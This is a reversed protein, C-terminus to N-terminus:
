QNLENKIIKQYKWHKDTQVHNARVYKATNWKFDKIDFSNVNRIVFGESKKVDVGMINMFDDFKGEFLIPVHVIDLIKFWKLTEKWSLCINNEWVSFGYFYSKLNKYHISHKAYLNEGCVRLNKNLLFFRESWFNKLWTRSEHNNSDISRAHTVNNPYLSSNEGDMKETVIIDMGFLHDFNKLTKDDDTKGLSYPLHYTRPYKYYM